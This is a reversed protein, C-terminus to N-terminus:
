KASLDLSSQDQNPADPLPAIQLPIGGTTPALANFVLTYVLGFIGSTLGALFTIFAGGFFGLSSRDMIAFLLGVISGTCIGGAFMLYFVPRYGLRILKYNFMRDAAKRNSNKLIPLLLRESLIM